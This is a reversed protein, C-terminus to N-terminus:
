LSQMEQLKAIVMEVTVAKMCRHDKACQKKYCNKCDIDAQIAAIQEGVPKVRLPDTPGCIVLMPTDTASAIHSTGTDNGVILKAEACLPVIDLMETAGCLNVLWPAELTQEIANCADRDDPGGILGIKELGREVLAQGLAAYSDGGWRKLYGAAQSGPFFIAYRGPHLGHEAQLRRANRVSTEPVSLCPRPTLPEIGAAALARQHIEFASIKIRGVGSSITYPFEPHTGVRYPPAWGLLYLIAMLTRSRQNSQLDVILDYRGQRVSRLWALIGSFSRVNDTLVRSLRHDKEFLARYPRTTHLDIRADPFARHLDEMAATAIVLDGMASWKIILIKKISPDAPLDFRSNIM